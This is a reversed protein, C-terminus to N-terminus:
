DDIQNEKSVNPHNNDNPQFASKTCNHREEEKTAKTHNNLNGNNIFSLYWHSDVIKSKINEENVLFACPLILFYVILTMTQLSLTAIPNEHGLIFTGLVVICFGLFEILWTVIQIHINLVNRRHRRAKAKETIM